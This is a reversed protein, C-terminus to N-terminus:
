DKSNKIFMKAIVLVHPFTIAAIFSFLLAEFIKADKLFWFLIGLGVISALWYWFSNKFYEKISEKNVEGHIYKIQDNLSPISHWLVFYIAFSWILDSVRFIIALVLLYLIQKALEAKFINLTKYYYISITFLVIGLTILLNKLFDLKISYVCIDNIIREVETEHFYFILSFILAGYTLYYLFNIASNAKLLIENWHQEGFHYASLIIFLLLAIDPLFSFFLAFLIVVTLYFSILFVLSKNKLRKFTKSIIVIDNAGHLIGFSLILFLGLLYLGESPIYSNLWLSLFSLVIIYKYIKM